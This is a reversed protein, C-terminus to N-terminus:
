HYPYDDKVPLMGIAVVPSPGSTLGRSGVNCPLAETFAGDIFASIARAKAIRVCNGLGVPASDICALMLCCYCTRFAWHFKAYAYRVLYCPYELSFFNVWFDM